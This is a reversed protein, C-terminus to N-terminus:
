KECVPCYWEQSDTDYLPESDCEVCWRMTRNKVIHLKSDSYGGGEVLEWGRREILEDLQDEEYQRIEGDEKFEVEISDWDHNYIDAVKAQNSVEKIKSSTKM